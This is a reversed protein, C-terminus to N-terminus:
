PRAAAPTDRPPAERDAPPLAMPVPLPQPKQVGYGQAFDVGLARLEAIVEKSEAYEGATQLGMIHGVRNITDAMARDVPDVAINRVFSGDIKLYDVPLTKLYALSSTGIGFDDLAFCFGLGKLERMFQAARKMHHIAATETIEFCVAGPPLPHLRAQERIFELTGEANLSTGSLNIACTLPTGMQARLDAYRAFVTKIVWRDIAPMIGYREAAPLFSGPPVLAGDEDILRLLIEIHEGAAAPRGLSLYRQYYLVLREEELARTLRSAWGMESRRQAMDADSSHYVCIRNRGQEKASYCATDAASFVETRSGTEATVAVLGISVSLTFVKGEWVYRFERVTNLLDTAVAQAADLTCDDLLVGFEDGGLRALTDTPRLRLQLLSSIQRLLGDGAAHGCAGPVATSRRRARGASAAM